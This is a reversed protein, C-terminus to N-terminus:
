NSDKVMDFLGNYQTQRYLVFTRLVMSDKVNRPLGVFLNISFKNCNIVHTIISYGKTKHHYYDEVFVSKPKLINIHIGDNVGQVSFFL